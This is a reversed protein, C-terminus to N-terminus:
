IHYCNFKLIFYKFKKKQFFFKKIKCVRFHKPCYNYFILSYNSKNKRCYNWNTQAIHIVSYNYPSNNYDIYIISEHRYNNIGSYSLYIYKRAYKKSWRFLLSYSINFKSYLNYFCKWKIYSLTNVL